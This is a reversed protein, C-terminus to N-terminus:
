RGKYFVADIAQCEIGSRGPNMREYDKAAKFEADFDNTAVYSSVASDMSELLSKKAEEYADEDLAIMQALSMGRSEVWKEIAVDLQAAVIGVVGFTMFPNGRAKAREKLLDRNTGFPYAAQVKVGYYTKYDTWDWFANYIGYQAGAMDIVWKKKPKTSSVFLVNHFYDPWNDHRDGVPTFATVMRSITGLDVTAEELKVDLGTLGNDALERWTMPM